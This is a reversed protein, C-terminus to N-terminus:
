RLISLRYRVGIAASFGRTQGRVRDEMGIVYIDTLSNYPYLYAASVSSHRRDVAPGQADTLGAQFHLTGPGVPFTFGGSYQDSKVDLGEDRIHTYLGFLRALGFNYTAGLQWTSEITPDVIGDNFHVRQWSLAAALLGRSYVVNAAALDSTRGEPGRGYMLNANVSEFLKPSSYGIARTWYFDEQVGEIDGSTFLHHIAPSFVTSNGLANFRTTTDFLLTQLRGIRVTGYTPNQVFAFANRSLLPDTNSRGMQFEEFRIFAELDTGITWGGEFGHKLEVGIFSASLSNSNFKHVPEFGSPEFRGYSFDAIGYLSYDTQAVAHGAALLLLAALWVKLSRRLHAM